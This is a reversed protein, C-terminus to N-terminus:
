QRLKALTETLPVIVRVVRWSLGQLEWIVPVPETPNKPDQLGYQFVTPSM